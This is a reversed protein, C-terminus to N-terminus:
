SIVYGPVFYAGFESASNTAAIIIQIFGVLIVRFWQEISVNSERHNDKKAIYGSYM